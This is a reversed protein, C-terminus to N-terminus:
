LRCRIVESAAANRVVELPFSVDYRPVDAFKAPGAFQVSVDDGMSSCGRPRYGNMIMRDVPHDSDAALLEFVDRPSSAPEPAQDVDNQVIQVEGGSNAGQVVPAAGCGIRAPDEGDVQVGSARFLDLLQAMSRVKGTLSIERDDCVVVTAPDIKSVLATWQTLRGTGALTM